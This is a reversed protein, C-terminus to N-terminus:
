DPVSWAMDPDLPFIPRPVHKYPVRTLVPTTLGPVDVEIIDEDPFFEDFAARFHGRSKVVLGRLKPIDVGLCEIMRPEALQHRQSIVAVLCGGCRLLATPGMELSRGARIGRRGVIQGDHLAVVEAEWELPESYTTTEARNFRAQFRAGLGMEHAEAALPADFYCGLLCGRVRAELFARLIYPTNGRGGGGPNDAPDAFLLPRLAPERNRELMMQVADDLSTMPKVYRQREEWVRAAIKRAARDAAAQDGRATVTVSMGNKATDGLSFGSCLSVNMVTEDLLSQGYAIHDAYPGAKTNQTISPPILPLKVFGKATKEGNLMEHMARASEAGRERQDVHPNTLFSCLMDVADVMTRGVNAHLDLTAIIPAEPGVIARAHAFLTGDPDPDVTAMGGGHEAFFVGDLPLAARLRQEMEAVLWDFFDQDIPGSAGGEACFIPVPQWPRLTNMEAMFGSFEAPASPAERALDDLLAQGDMISAPLVDDRGIVPAHGNSELRFAVLAIRAPRNPTTADRATSAPTTM